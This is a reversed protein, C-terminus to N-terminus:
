LDISTIRTTPVNQLLSTGVFRLLYDVSFRGPGYLIICSLMMAWYMHDLHKLYSFQIVFTIFLLPIAAFRSIFGVLLFIPMSLEFFSASIAAFEHSIYPVAYEYKFLYLTSNWSSIKTLGSYWFIQAIWFRMFLLLASFLYKESFLTLCIYLKGFKSLFFCRIYQAFSNM